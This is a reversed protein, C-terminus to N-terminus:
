PKVNDKNTHIIYYSLLNNNKRVWMDESREIISTAASRLSPFQFRTTASHDLSGLVPFAEKGM